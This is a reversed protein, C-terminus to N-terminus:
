LDIKGFHGALIICDLINVRGDNNIDCHVCDRWPKTNPTHGDGNKHGFHNALLICDLINVRGDGNVDGSITVFVWGDIWLRNLDYYQLDVKDTFVHSWTAGPYIPDSVLYTSGDITRVFWLTYIVPDTNSWVVTDGPQINLNQPVFAFGSMSVYHTTQANSKLIIVAFMSFVLFSALLMTVVTQRNALQKATM